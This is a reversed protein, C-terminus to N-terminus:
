KFMNFLFLHIMFHWHSFYALWLLSCLVCLTYKGLENWSWLIGAYVILSLIRALWPWPLIMIKERTGYLLFTYSMHKRNQIYMKYNFLYKCRERVPLFELYEIQWDKIPVHGTMSYLRWPWFVSCVECSQVAHLIDSCKVPIDPAEAMRWSTNAGSKVHVWHDAELHSMSQYKWSETPHLSSCPFRGPTRIGTIHKEHSAWCRGIKRKGNPWEYLPVELYLGGALVSPRLCRNM